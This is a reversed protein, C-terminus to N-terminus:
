PAPKSRVGDLLLRGKRRVVRLSGVWPNENRYHGLYADWEKPTEFRTPGTYRANAYWDGGWGLEVVASGPDKADARGNAAGTRHHATRYRLARLAAM